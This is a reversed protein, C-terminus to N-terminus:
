DVNPFFSVQSPKRPSSKSITAFRKAELPSNAVQVNLETKMGNASEMPEPISFGNDLHLIPPTIWLDSCFTFIHM